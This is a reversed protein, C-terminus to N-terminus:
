VHARGIETYMVNWAFTKTISWSEVSRVTRLNRWGILDQHGFKDHNSAGIQDYTGSNTSGAKTGSVLKYEISLNLPRNLFTVRRSLGAFGAFARQTLPGMHGGQGIGELSLNVKGPLPGYFRAGFTNTGLTGAGTWGGIKNQSHRLAYADVSFGRLVKSFVDYTGWIRDGLDPVNYADTRIKVQSIMLAELRVKGTQYYVRGTDYTRSLNGWQPSGIVRTEGYDLM